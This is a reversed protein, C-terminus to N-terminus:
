QGWGESELDKVHKQHQGMVSTANEVAVHGGVGGRLPGSVLQSFGKGKVLERAVTTAAGKGNPSGPSNRPIVM